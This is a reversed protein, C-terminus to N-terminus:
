RTSGSRKSLPIIRFNKSIIVVSKDGSKLMRGQEVKKNTFEPWFNPNVGKVGVSTTKSGFTLEAGGEVNVNIYEIDPISLFTFVDMKTLEAETVYEPEISDSTDIIGFDIDILQNQTSQITVYRYVFRFM